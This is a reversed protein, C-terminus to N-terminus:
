GKMDPGGKRKGTSRKQSQGNLAKQPTEDALEKDRVSGPARQEVASGEDLEALIPISSALFRHLPEAVLKGDSSFWANFPSSVTVTEWSTGNAGARSWYRVTLRYVPEHKKVWSCVELKVGRDKIEGAFVCGREVAWIWYTFAANLLFYICVAYFTHHKTAEWGLRYDYYFTAAAVVVASYGLLLRADTYSHSQAFSLSRFYLPLSDDTANKM